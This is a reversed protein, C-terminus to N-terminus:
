AATGISDFYKQTKYWVDKKGEVVEVWGRRRWQSILNVVGKGNDDDKKQNHIERILRVEDRTFTDNLKQLLNSPGHRRSVPTADGLEKAAMDPFITFKCWMDYEFAWRMFAGIEKTWKYDNMIYLLCGKRFASEVSRFGLAMYAKSDMLAKRDLVTQVLEMALDKAQKCDIIGEAKELRELYPQLKAQYKENYNGFVPLDEVDENVITCLSFRSLTGNGIQGEFFTRSNEPTTSVVMNTRLITDARVSEKGVREQGYEDTDYNRRLLQTVKSKKGGALDYMQDLEDMKIFLAKDGAREADDSLRVLAAATTDSHICQISIGKPREPKDKNAGLSACKENWDNLLERNAKEKEKIPKVISKLPEKISSKGISTDADLLNMQTPEILTNNYYRLKLGGTYTAFASFATIAIAPHYGRPANSVVHRIPQPLRPPLQPQLSLGDQNCADTRLREGAQWIAKTLDKSEKMTKSYKCANEITEDVRKRDEGFDPMIQQIWKPENNCICRLQKAMEYIFVNRSGHVPAGGMLLTLEEIILQYPIGRFDSPYPLMATEAAPMQESDSTHATESMQESKLQRGDIDLGRDAYAKRRQEIEEDSLQAYWGDATYIQSAEDTVYIMREPTICDMDFDVGLAKTYARQAEEITMGVPIRIDLHLKGSASYEAHLLAGQWEGGEENNLLYARHLAPEVEERKDIDICTQFTFAEPIIAAQCRHNDLFRFYHPCRIPLNKKLERRKNEDKEQRIQSVLSALQENKTLEFYNEVSTEFVTGKSLPAYLAQNLSISNKKM